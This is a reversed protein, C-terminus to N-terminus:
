QRCTLNAIAKDQQSDWSLPPVQEGTLTAWGAQNDQWVGIRIRSADDGMMGNEALLLVFLELCRHSSYAHFSPRGWTTTSELSPRSTPSLLKPTEPSLGSSNKRLVALALSKFSRPKQPSQSKRALTDAQTPREVNMTELPKRASAPPRREPGTRQAAKRHKDSVEKKVLGAADPLPGRPYLGTGRQPSCITNGAPRRPSKVQGLRQPSKIAPGKPSKVQSVRQPSRIGCASPSQQQPKRQPSRFGPASQVGKRIQKMLGSSGQEQARRIRAKQAKEKKIKLADEDETEAELENDRRRNKEADFRLSDPQENYESEEAKVKSRRHSALAKSALPKSPLKQEIGATKPQEAKHKKTTQKTSPVKTSGQKRPSKLVKQDSPEAVKTHEAEKMAANTKQVKAARSRSCKESTQKIKRKASNGPKEPRISKMAVQESTDSLMQSQALLSLEEQKPTVTGPEAKIAAKTGPRKANNLKQRKAAPDQKRETKALVHKNPRSGKANKAAAPCINGHKVFIEPKKEEIPELLSKAHEGKVDGIHEPEPTPTASPTLKDLKRLPKNLNIESGKRPRGIKRKPKEADVVPKVM